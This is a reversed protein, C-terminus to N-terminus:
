EFFLDSFNVKKKLKKHYNFLSSIKNGLLQSFRARSPEKEADISNGYELIKEVDERTVNESDLGKVWKWIEFDAGTLEDLYIDTLDRNAMEKKENKENEQLRRIEKQFNKMSENSESKGTKEFNDMNM